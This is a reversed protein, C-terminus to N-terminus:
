YQAIVKVQGDRTIRTLSLTVAWGHANVIASQQEFAAIADRKTSFIQERPTRDGELNWVTLRYPTPRAM